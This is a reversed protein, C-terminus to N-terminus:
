VPVLRKSRRGRLHNGWWVVLFLAAGISLATGVGSIATSRVTFQTSAISADSDPFTLRVKIPFSGSSPARVAFRTTTNERVLELEQVDGAPFEVPSGSVRLVVRLPYGLRNTITVPIDGERATLTISRNPPMAIGAIQRDLQGEIGSLYRARDRGRLDSSPVTLLTRNMTDLIGGGVPDAPDLATSFADIRRRLERIRAGPLDPAAPTGPPPESITRVLPTARTGTGTTAPAVADFFGDVTTPALIPSSSLGALFTRLFDASPTWSRSPAVVVGRRLAKPDDNYIQALDALLHQAALVPSPERFHAALATDAMAAAVPGRRSTMGFTATLTTNRTIPQLLAEPVVLRLVKQDAQLSALAGDTLREDVLRTATTPEVGLRGRLVGLGRNLQEAAEEGLDADLMSSLNTPVYPGALVQRGAAMRALAALTAEDEGRPSAALGDITEPTPALTFPADAQQELGAALEALQGAREDDISRTGDPGTSPPAHVPVVAAVTLRDGELAAPVAILHTVFSATTTGGGVPRLEVRVPYVGDDRISPTLAAIRGGQGDEALSAVPLVTTELPRGTIRGDITATFATRTQLKRYVSVAVEVASPDAAGIGLTLTFPTDPQWWQTQALLTLPEATTPATGQAAARRPAAAGAPAVRVPVLGSLLVVLALLAPLRRAGREAM